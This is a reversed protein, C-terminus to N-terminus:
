VPTKQQCAPTKRKPPNSPKTTDALLKKLDGSEASETKLAAEALDARATQSALTTAQEELQTKLAAIEARLSDSESSVTELQARVSGLEIEMKDADEARSLAERYPIKKRCTGDKARYWQATRQGNSTCSPRFIKRCTKGAFAPSVTVLLAILFPLAKM